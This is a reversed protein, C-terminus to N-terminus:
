PSSRCAQRLAAQAGVGLAELWLAWQLPHEAHASAGRLEAAWTQLPAAQRAKPLQAPEFYQPAAGATVRLLDTALRQLLDILARPKWATFEGLEGRAVLRPFEALRPASLGAQLWALAQQPRQGAGRLLAAADLESLGAHQARLWAAGEAADPLTVHVTQCRSRVTPLLDDVAESVLVLRLRGGPEELTKLLANAAVGNMAEAPHILVVKGRSRGATSQAFGLMARLEDIRIEQSPKSKDDPEQWGLQVRLAAPLLWHADPHSRQSFLHCAQCRGCAQAGQGAEARTEASAETSECLWAQALAQGAEFAALGPLSALLVAHARPLALAQALPAQLWPALAASM